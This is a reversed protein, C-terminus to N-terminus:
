RKVFTRVIGKEPALMTVKFGKNQLLNILPVPPFPSILEMCEGPLLKEAQAVVLDKPHNGAEIVPRVDLTFTVLTEPVEQSFPVSTEEGEPCFNEGLEPIGIEKRLTNVMDVVNINGVKAAQQLSTVKAVTRRLVPNKLAAFAPSFQLITGELEPYNKLLEAVKTDPTIDIRDRSM